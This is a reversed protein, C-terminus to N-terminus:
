DDTEELKKIDHVAVEAKIKRSTANSLVVEARELLAAKAEDFSDFYFVHSSQKLARDAGFFLCKDTERDAYVTKISAQPPFMSNFGMNIKYKKIM